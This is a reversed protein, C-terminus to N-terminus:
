GRNPEFLLIAYFLDLEATGKWTTLGCQLCVQQVTAGDARQKIKPTEM